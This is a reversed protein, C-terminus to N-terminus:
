RGRGPVNPNALGNSTHCQARTYAGRADIVGREHVEGPRRPRRRASREPERVEAARPHVTICVTVYSHYQSIACLGICDLSKYNTQRRPPRPTATVARMTVCITLLVLSLQRSKLTKVHPRRVPAGRSLPYLKCSTEILLFGCSPWHHSSCVYRVLV